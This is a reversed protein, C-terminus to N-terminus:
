EEGDKQSTGPDLREWMRGSLERTDPEQKVQM